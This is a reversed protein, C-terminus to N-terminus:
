YRNRNRNNRLMAATALAVTLMLLILFTPVLKIGWPTFNLIFGVLPVIALSLGVSLAVLELRDMNQRNKAMCDRLFFTTNKPFLLKLISYGPLFIVFVLGFVSRVYVLPYNSSTVVFILTTTVVALTITIWYWMNKTFVRVKKRGIPKQRVFHLVGKDELDLLLIIAKEYPIAYLEQMMGILQKATEPKQKDIINLILEKLEYNAAQDCYSISM